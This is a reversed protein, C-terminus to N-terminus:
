AAYGVKENVFSYDDIEAMKVDASEPSAFDGQLQQGLFKEDFDEAKDASSKNQAEFVSRTM